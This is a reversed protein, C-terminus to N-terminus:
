WLCYLGFSLQFSGEEVWLGGEEVSILEPDEGEVNLKRRTKKMTERARHQTFVWCVLIHALYPGLTCSYTSFISGDCLFIHM